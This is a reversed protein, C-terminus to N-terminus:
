KSVSPSPSPSRSGKSDSPVFGAIPLRDFSLDAESAFTLSPPIAYVSVSRSEKIKQGEQVSFAFDLPAEFILVITSGLMFGGMEDGANLPQGRLLKSAKSYVAEIYTGAAHPRVRNNTRLSEDFNIRISGVNTAGVPVMGFFGHKWRGLLAVRENLVFLNAM